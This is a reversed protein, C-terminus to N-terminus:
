SHQPPYLPRPLKYWRKYQPPPQLPQQLKHRPNRRSNHKKWTINVYVKKGGIMTLAIGLILAFFIVQLMDGSALSAIPNNPVIALLNEVTSPADGANSAKSGAAAMFQAELAAKDADGIADGPRIIQACLLGITVAAATTLMYVGLTKGGVRGLKRLDGM